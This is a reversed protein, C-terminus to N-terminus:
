RFVGPPRAEPRKMRVRKAVNAATAVVMAATTVDTMAATAGTTVDIM